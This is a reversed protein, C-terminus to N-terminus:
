GVLSKPFIKKNFQHLRRVWEHGGNLCKSDLLSVDRPMIPSGRTGGKFGWFRYHESLVTTESLNLPPVRPEGMMGLSTLRESLLHQLFAVTPLFPNLLFSCLKLVRITQKYTLKTIKKNTQLTGTSCSIDRPRRGCLLATGAQAGLTIKTRPGQNGFCSPWM